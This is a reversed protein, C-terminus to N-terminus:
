RNQVRECTGNATSHPCWFWPFREQTWRKGRDKGASLRCFDADDSCASFLCLTLFSVLSYWRLLCAVTNGSAARICKGEESMAGPAPKQRGRGVLQGEPPTPMVPKAAEQSVSSQQLPILWILKEIFNYGIRRIYVWRALLLLSRVAVEAEPDREQEDRWIPVEWISQNIDTWLATCLNLDCCVSYEYLYYMECSHIKRWNVHHDFHQLLVKISCNYWM